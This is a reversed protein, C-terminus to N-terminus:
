PPCEFVFCVNYKFVIMNNVKTRFIENLYAISQEFGQDCDSQELANYSRDPQSFWWGRQEDDPAATTPDLPIEHPASCFIFEAHNRLSKRLGGTRERFSKDSQRYGHLMLLKLVPKKSSMKNKKFNFYMEESDTM